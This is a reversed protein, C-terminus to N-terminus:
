SINTVEDLLQIKAVDYHCSFWTVDVWDGQGVRCVHRCMGTLGKRAQTHPQGGQREHSHRLYGYVLMCFYKIM